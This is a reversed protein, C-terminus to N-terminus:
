SLVKKDDIWPKEQQKMKYYCIENQRGLYRMSLSTNTFYILRIKFSCFIKDYRNVWVSCRKSTSNELFSQTVLLITMNWHICIRQETTRCVAVSRYRFLFLLIFVVIFNGWSLSKLKAAISLRSFSNVFTQPYSSNAIPMKNDPQQSASINLLNNIAYFKCGDIVM